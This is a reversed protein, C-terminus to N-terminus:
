QIVVKAVSMGANSELRVMYVGAPINEVDLTIIQGEYMDEQMNQLAVRGEASILSVKVNGQLATNLSISLVSQAPNPQLTMALTQKQAEDAAVVACNTNVIVGAQDLGAKALDGETSTVTAESEFNVMDIIQVEDIFWAGGAPGNNDDTGFRFRINIDEGLYDSLDIYSQIWGNSNGSYGSLYPIAFTGYQVKGTYPNRFARDASIRNWRFTPDDVKQIEVFGADAGTETNYKHWFRLVPKNGFVTVFNGSELTFDTFATTSAVGKFSGTGVIKDASQLNFFEEAGNTEISLSFWNNTDDMPDKYYCLSNVGAAVKATYTLTVTQRTQLTGLNWVVFGSNLTGGNSASVFELGAPLEDSVIVGTVANDKHNTITITYQATGGPEVTPTSTVKTIKLEKVCTPIPDFNEIGDGANDSTGQSALYGLGRRAYVASILCTDAGNYNILDAMIIADRGDIFGPSCPQLKLGDMVLQVARANGSNVDTLTPDFGYKEVMAWYLDWNVAAWIEGLAHVQTNEAVTSFTIPNISMDTTYPYRRIGQGDNEQRSVYTGVGRKKTSVDGAKATTALTFFDSWGEGMQEANGLCSTTNPGGTLRNSIGHGYEHAIIGNDFDGDYFAPGTIAPQVLSVNLGAGAYQRLKDCDGKGMMVVPITVSGGVSGVAMNITGDEFNCIICGKAGANQANLAKQGFECVGRDVIAIKGNVGTYPNCGLSGEPTGDNVVVVDGTVPTTSIPTGWTPNTASYSGLIAGPANVTVIKGGQRSWTYMQMSGNGGDPPTAFNANDTGSGDLAQALVYDGGQGGKGYNNAQFNGAAEDFGFRYTIDHLMNNMYFLNTIAANKNAVPEADPDFPFIFELTAGANASEAVSPTNDNASDDFAWVNNGRTYTYENGQVGNDDLWGFPSSELDAPAILLERQGHAPSEVPLPFVSYVEGELTTATAINKETAPANELCDAELADAHEAACYVTHNIKQLLAGTQADVRLNWIDTTNAQAIIMTWALKVDGYEQVQYCISVSIPSKSVAGGEFIFNQDNIKQRVAPVPFGTFGLHGMAMELARAASLSPLTTNVKQELNAVFRHGLHLVEGNPKVHLGFLANFVPIGHHQQQVWVHTLGNNKSVYEDTVRVDAVDSAALNFRAPAAQLFRLATERPTRATQASASIGFLSLCILLLFQRTM